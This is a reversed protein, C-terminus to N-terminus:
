TISDFVEPFFDICVIWRKMAKIMGNIMKPFFYFLYMNRSDDSILVFTLEFCMSQFKVYFKQYVIQM